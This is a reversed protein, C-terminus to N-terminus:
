ARKIALPRRHRGDRRGIARLSFAVPANNQSKSSGTGGFRPVSITVRVASPRFAFWKGVHRIGAWPPPRPGGNARRRCWTIRNRVVSVFDQEKPSPAPALTCVSAFTDEPFQGHITELWRM